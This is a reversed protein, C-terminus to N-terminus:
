VDILITPPVRSTRVKIINVVLQIFYSPYTTINLVSQGLNSLTVTVLTSPQNPCHGNNWLQFFSFPICSLFKNFAELAPIIHRTQDLEGSCIINKFAAGALIDTALEVWFDVIAVVL